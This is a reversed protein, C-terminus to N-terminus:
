VSRFVRLDSQLRGATVDSESISRNWADAGLARKKDGHWNKSVLLM